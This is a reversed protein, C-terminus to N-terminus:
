KCDGVWHASTKSDITAVKRGAKSELSVQAVYRTPESKMTGSGTFTSDKGKCVLKWTVNSPDTAKVDKALCKMALGRQPPLVGAPSAVDDSTYCLRSTIARRTTSESTDVTTAIEWLGPKMPTPAPAAAKGQALAQGALALLAAGLVARFPHMASRRHLTAAMVPPIGAVFGGQHSTVMM